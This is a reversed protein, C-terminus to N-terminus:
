LITIYYTTIEIDFTNKSDSVDISVNKSSVKFISCTQSCLIATINEIHHLNILIIHTLVSSNARIAM